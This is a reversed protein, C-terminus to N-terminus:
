KITKTVTDNGDLRTEYAGGFSYLSDSEKTSGIFHMMHVRVGDGDYGYAWSEAVTGTAFVFM